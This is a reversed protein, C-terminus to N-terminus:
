IWWTAVAYRAALVIALILGSATLMLVNASQIHSPQPEVEPDGLTPKQSPKGSYYCLGGLQIGLAGSFAAETHGANPSPHKLRDRLLVRASSAARLGLILAAVPVLASSLRAPIFNVIDDLKASAWGFRAYRENKYGFTSDLTSVAKYVMIGVPGAIAAFFLPATVGDTMNESVSEVAARVIGQRDLKETDRGCIMSTRRAAEALDGAELGARVDSAHKVLDRAAIGTYLLLISVLDGIWPHVAKACLVLFLAALGTALVVQVVALIGALKEDRIARRLQPELWVAFQGILRVPHPLWRPDGALLDLAVAIIIQYELRMLVCAFTKPM